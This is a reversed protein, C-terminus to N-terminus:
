ISVIAFILNNSSLSRFSDELSFFIIPHAPLNCSKHLASVAAPRKTKGCLFLGYRILLLLKSYMEICFIQVQTM